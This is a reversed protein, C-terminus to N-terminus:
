EIAPAAPVLHAPPPAGPLALAAMLGLSALFYTPPLLTKPM